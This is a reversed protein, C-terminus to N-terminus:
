EAESAAPEVTRQSISRKIGRAQARASWLAVGRRSWTYVMPSVRYSHPYISSLYSDASSCSDIRHIGPVANQLATALELESWHGPNGRAFEPDWGIKFAFLTDRARLNCTSAVVRGDITLEGFIVDGREALANVMEVFFKEDAARSALATGRSGKWGLSELRLFTEIPEIEAPEICRLRFGVKGQRELWRQSRTLSKRRSKSCHSLLGERRVLDLDIMPRTWGSGEFGAALVRTAADDLFIQQCGTRKMSRFEIGHWTRQASLFDFLAALAGRATRRDVLPSDLFSYRSEVASLRALPHGVSPALERVVLAARWERNEPDGVSLVRLGEYGLLNAALPLVFEPQQFPNPEDAQTSLRKWRAIDELSLEGLPRVAVVLRERVPASASLHRDSDIM